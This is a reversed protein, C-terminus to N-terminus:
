AAKAADELVELVDRVQKFGGFVEVIGSLQKLAKTYASYEDARSPRGRKAPEPAAANEAVPPTANEPAKDAPAESPM